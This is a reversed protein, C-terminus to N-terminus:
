LLSQSMLSTWKASKYSQTKRVLEDLFPQSIVGVVPIRKHALGISCGVYPSNLSIANVTSTYQTELPKSRVLWTRLQWSLFIDARLSFGASVLGYRFWTSTRGKTFLMFRIVNGKLNLVYARTTM